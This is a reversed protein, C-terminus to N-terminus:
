GPPNERVCRDVADSGSRWADGADAEDDATYLDRIQDADLDDVIAEAACSAQDATLGAEELQEQIQDATIADDSCAVAALAVLLAAVLRLPRRLTTAV